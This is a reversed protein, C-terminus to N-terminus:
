NIKKWRNKLQGNSFYVYDKGARFITWIEGQTSENRNVRIVVSLYQYNPDSISIIHNLHIFKGKRIFIDSDVFNPKKIADIIKSGNDMLYNFDDKHSNNIHTKQKGPLIISKVSINKNDYFSSFNISQNYIVDDNELVSSILRKNLKPLLDSKYKKLLESRNLGLESLSKEYRMTGWKVSYKRGVLDSLKLSGDRYAVFKAPGLVALQNDFSLKAFADIGSEIKPVSEAINSFGMEAYTITDPASTCRGAVHEDQREDLGHWTGHLSWCVACTNSTRASIWVWGKVVNSNALYSRHTSERYVRLQETRAIRLARVMNNGLYKRINRAVQKPNLGLALGQVLGNAVANGADGILENLLSHLPSGDQLFGIMDSIADVPLRNFVFSAGLPPTGLGLRILQEAHTQAQGALFLQEQRIKGDTFNMFNAIQQETQARLGALRNYKFLWASSKDPDAYYASTLDIIQQNLVKWIGGYFRVMESAAARERLIVDRRFRSATRFLISDAM